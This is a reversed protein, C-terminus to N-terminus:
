VRRRRRAEAAIRAKSMAFRCIPCQAPVHGVARCHSRGFSIFQLHLRNWHERAFTRRLDRETAAV